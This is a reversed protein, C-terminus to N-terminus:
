TTLTNVAVVRDPITVLSNFLPAFIYHLPSITCPREKCKSLNHVNSGVAPARSTRSSDASLIQYDTCQSVKKLENWSVSYRDHHHLFYDLLIVSWYPKTNSRIEEAIRCNKTATMTSPVQWGVLSAALLPWLNAPGTKITINVYFSLLHTTVQSARSCGSVLKNFFVQMLCRRLSTPNFWLSGSIAWRNFVLYYFQLIPLKM